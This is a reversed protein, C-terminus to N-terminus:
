AIGFTAHAIEIGHIRKRASMAQLKHLIARHRGIVPTNPPHFLFL